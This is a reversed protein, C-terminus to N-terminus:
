GDERIYGKLAAIISLLESREICLLDIRRDLDLECIKDERGTKIFSDKQIKLEHIRNLVKTHSETYSKLLQKM